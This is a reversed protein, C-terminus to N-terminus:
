SSTPSHPLIPFHIRFTTGKIPETVITLRAKHHELVVAVFSLGLGMGASYGEYLANDRKTTFHTEMCHARVEETMGIGNDTVELVASEDEQYCRITVEGRWSAANLLAQQRQPSALPLKRAEARLHNRMEFTADRANFVLNEIAQQLHSLDGQIWIAEPATQVSLNLKWKESALRSWTAGTSQVVETLNLPSMETRTPDRRVTRLIMQLRETVQGLTEQVESLLQSQQEPLNPTELCRALLDNPRVLLNKINHAYSGAMIGIGAYVQSKMELNAKEAEAARAEAKAAEVSKELSKNREQQVLKEAREREAEAREREAEARERASEAQLTQIERQRERERYQSERQFFFFAWLTAFVTILLTIVLVWWQSRQREQAEKQLKDYVHMRYDCRIVAVVEQDSLVPHEFLPRDVSSRRPRSVPASWEIKEQLAPFEIEIHFIDMFLPLQGSYKRLPDTMAKLQAEMEHHRDPSPEKAYLRALEPLTLRFIRAEELWERLNAEDNQRATDASQIIPYIANGFLVLWPLGSFLMFLSFTSWPTKSQTPTEISTTM